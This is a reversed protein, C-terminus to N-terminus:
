YLSVEPCKGAALAGSSLLLLGLFLSLFRALMANASKMRGGRSFGADLGATRHAWRLYALVLRFCM